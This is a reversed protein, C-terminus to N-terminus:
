FLSDVKIDQAIFLSFDRLKIRMYFNKKRESKVKFFINKSRSITPQRKPFSSGAKFM